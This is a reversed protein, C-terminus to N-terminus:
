IGGPCMPGPCSFCWHCQRLSIVFGTLFLPPMDNVGIKIVVFNFGWLFVTVLALLIHPLAM